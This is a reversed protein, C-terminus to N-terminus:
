RACEEPVGAAAPPNRARAALTAYTELYQRLMRAASFREQAVARCAEPYLSGVATIAEAMEAADRVLFGTVGHEVIEALAGSAFAVVPTGCALAEMAVLSSTEPALSPVLLCRAASLLRRKQRLAVTGVFRRREDLRPLIEDAFYRQHSEYPFVHGALRMGVNARRAADLALHFGKEPCVRGLALVWDRKAAGRVLRDVRVGNPITPLLLSSPPCARRQTDSVCNLYTNPRTLAFTSPSYWTPPLHLTALVPVGAPPLYEPFDLGHVHIVDVAAADLARAIATRHAAYAAARQAPTVTGSLAPTACLTGAVRSGDCAVVISRHGATTLGRDLTALVQEAGGVADASVTGLAYAVQLVTLM